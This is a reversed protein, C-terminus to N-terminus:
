DEVLNHYMVHIDEYVGDKNLFGGPIIGLDVFGLRQYLHFAHINSAVVANFQLVRYGNAKAQELCDKVLLEGIHEGRCARDVAYSANAIHGVRGINNPHLIYLGKVNGQEDEAVASVTQAAFFEAAEAGTLGEEQPFAVGDEVVQNWIETRPIHKKVPIGDIVATNETLLALVPSLMQALQFKKVFDQENLYDISVQTSASGRMMRIGMTETHKFYADMYEYRRKPILPLEAAKAYPQYGCTELRMHRLGLYSEMRKLFGEYIQELEQVTKRPFISIELQAAPELSIVYEMTVCGLLSRQEYECQENGFLAELLEAIEEYTANTNDEKIVFHEIEVGIRRNYDEKCGARFYDTIKRINMGALDM